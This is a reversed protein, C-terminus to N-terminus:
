TIIKEFHMHPHPPPFVMICFYVLCLITKLESHCGFMCTEGTGWAHWFSLLTFLIIENQLCKTCPCITRCNGLKCNYSLPLCYTCFSLQLISLYNLIHMPFEEWWKKFLAFLYFVFIPCYSYIQRWLSFPFFAM